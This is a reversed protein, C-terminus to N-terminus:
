HVHWASHSHTPFCVEGFIEPLVAKINEKNVKNILGNLSEQPPRGLAPAPVAHESEDKAERLM